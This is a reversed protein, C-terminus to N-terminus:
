SAVEEKRAHICLGRTTRLSRPTFREGLQIRTVVVLVQVDKEFNKELRRSVRRALAPLARRSSITGSPCAPPELVITPSRMAGAAYM